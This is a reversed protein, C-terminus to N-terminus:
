PAGQRIDHINSLFWLVTTDRISPIATRLAGDM